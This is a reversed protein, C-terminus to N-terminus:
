TCAPCPYSPASRLSPWWTTSIPASNADVEKANYMRLVMKDSFWYAGFNMVLAFGLALLMGGRGGMMGGLVVFLATIAAMLMFTKMWNFM